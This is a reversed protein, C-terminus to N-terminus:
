RIMVAAVPIPVKIASATATRAINAVQKQCARFILPTCMALNMIPKELLATWSSMTLKRAM